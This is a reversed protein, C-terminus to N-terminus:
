TATLKIKARGAGALVQDAAIAATDKTPYARCTFVRKGNSAARTPDTDSTLKIDARKAGVVAAAFQACV